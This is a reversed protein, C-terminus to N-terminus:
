DAQTPQPRVVRCPTGYAVVNAPLNELVTAGAGVVTYDGITVNNIIKAGLGIMVHDGCTVNGALIAGPALHVGQGLQGHHDLQAGNNIICAAGIRCDPGVLALAGIVTGPMIFASAAIVASPHALVPLMGGCRQIQQTLQWRREQDGIAIVFNYKTLDLDSLEDVTNDVHGAIEYGLLIGIDRVVAAHGGNGLILLPQKPQKAPSVNHM